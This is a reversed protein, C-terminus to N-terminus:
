GRTFLWNDGESLRDNYYYGESDFLKMQEPDTISNQIIFRSMMGRARKAYISVISYEGDKYEKFVPTIIRANLKTSDISSFYENSALNILIPHKSVTKDRKFEKKLQTTIKDRWFAYLDKGRENKLRAAMELRHPRILDLPSLIGYLGSLIRFHQQAFILEVDNFTAANLGEFAEGHYTFIAQKSAKITEKMRWKQFREFNLETLKPSISMLEGLEDPTFTFLLAALYDAEKHFVPKSYLLTQYTPAFDLTKAPSFIIIM